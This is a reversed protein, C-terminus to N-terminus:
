PSFLDVLVEIIRVVMGITWECARRFLLVLASVVLLLALLILTWPFAGTGYEQISSNAIQLCALALAILLAAILLRWLEFQRPKNTQVVNM